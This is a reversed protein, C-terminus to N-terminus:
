RQAVKLDDPANWPIRPVVDVDSRLCANAVATSTHVSGKAIFSDVHTSTM